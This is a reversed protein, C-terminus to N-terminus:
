RQMTGSQGSPEWVIGIFGLASKLGGETAARIPSNRSLSSRRSTVSTALSVPPASVCIRSADPFVSRIPRTTSVGHSVNSFKRGGINRGSCHSARTGPATYGTTCDSRSGGSRRSGSANPQSVFRRTGLSTVAAQSRGACVSLPTRRSTARRRAPISLRKVISAASFSRPKSRGTSM